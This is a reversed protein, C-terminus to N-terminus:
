IECKITKDNIKCDSGVCAWWLEVPISSSLALSLSLAFPRIPKARRCKGFSYGCLLADKAFGKIADLRWAPLCRVWLQAAIKARDDCAATFSNVLYGIRNPMHVIQFCKGFSM